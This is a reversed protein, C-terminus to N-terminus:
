ESVEVDRVRSLFEEADFDDEDKASEWESIIEEIEDAAAECANARAELMQGTDGQQLGEPMNDFKEQQEEGLARIDDAFQQADDMDAIEAKSDEWDYLQQFYESTTLQSRKFPKLSRKVIGGRQLKLAVYWYRDGKKIGQEPYDKAATKQVPKAM